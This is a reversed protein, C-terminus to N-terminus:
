LFDTETTLRGMKQLERRTGHLIHSMHVVGGDAAALYAANVIINRINGGALRFRRALLEFNIDEGRPIGPPFITKWIQLRYPEDPFPFDVAFQLRRTFAEDLNARMNTALITVGNYAEMRQLLFSIEINAYRDHADKVESRKGFLADAEDFFLISNSTEAEVFIRELNKETEGIYKSVVTSLDIKYLDLGLERSLIGASMTKGTGPPGAFLVTVGRNPALKQGVGWEDLVLPRSKVTNLIEKLLELSDEPLVLDEWGFETRIKRALGALRPNSHERAAAFLAELSLHEGRQAADDRASAVADRIQGSTLLFQGALSQFEKQDSIQTNNVFFTWFGLRKRYDPIPFDFWAINRERHIGSPVWSKVGSLIVTEPYALIKELILQAMRDDELCTDWGLVAPIADNLRCDRMLELLNARTVGEDEGRKNFDLCFVPKKLETAIASLASHKRSEDVGTFVVAPRDKGIAGLAEWLEDPIAWAEVGQGTEVRRLFSAISPSPQYQDLLWAYVPEEVGLPRNLLGEKEYSERAKHILQNKFLRAYDQFYKLKAYRETGPPCLLNLVLNVTPRKRTVDDQLYGFLREYRLDLLPAMAIMFVDREFADLRFVAEMHRLRLQVGQSLAEHEVEKIARSIKELARNFEDASESTESDGQGWGTALPRELLADIEADSIYLGRYVDEDDQGASRWHQVQREILIDLRAFELRILKLNFASLDPENIVGTRAM